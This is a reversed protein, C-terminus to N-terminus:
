QVAYDIDKDYAFPTATLFVVKPKEAKPIQKWEDVLARREDSIKSAEEQVEKSKDKLQEELLLRESYSKTNELQEDLANREARLEELKETDPVLLVARDHLGRNHYTLMRVKNLETTANGKENSMLNHAEDCVVLDWEKNVIAENARINAYTTICVGEGGDKVDKLEHINIPNNDGDVFFEKASRVWFGSTKFFIVM